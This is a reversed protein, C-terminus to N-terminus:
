NVTDEAIVLYPATITVSAKGYEMKYPRVFMKDLPLEIIVPTDSAELEDESIIPDSNMVKVKFTGFNVPDVCDYRVYDIKDTVTNKADLVYVPKVERLIAKDPLVKNADLLFFDSSITNDKIITRM